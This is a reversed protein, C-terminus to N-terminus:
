NGTVEGEIREKTPFFQIHKNIISMKVSVNSTFSLGRSVTQHHGGWTAKVVDSKPTLSPNGCWAQRFPSTHTSSHSLSVIYDLPRQGLFWSDDRWKLLFKRSCGLGIVDINMKYMAKLHPFAKKLAVYIWNVFYIFHTYDVITDNHAETLTFCSWAIVMRSSNYTVARRHYRKTTDWFHM